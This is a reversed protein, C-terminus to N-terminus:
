KLPIFCPHVILSLCNPHVISSLSWNERWDKSYICFLTTFKQYSLSCKSVIKLCLFKLLFDFHGFPFRFAIFMPLFLFLRQTRSLSFWHNILFEMHYDKNSLCQAGTTFIVVFTVFLIFRIASFYFLFLKENVLFLNFITSSVRADKILILLELPLVQPLLLLFHLNYKKETLYTPLNLCSKKNQM